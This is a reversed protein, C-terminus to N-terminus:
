AEFRVDTKNAACGLTQLVAVAEPGREVPVFLHDHHYGAVVNCSLGAQALATSVAATLGVAALASHVRLTIMAAVYDYSLGARDAEAQTLVLTLGEDERVSVVPEVGDPVRDTTVYVFREPRLEPSMGALLVPLDM